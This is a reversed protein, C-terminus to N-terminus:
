EGQSLSLTDRLSSLIDDMITTSLSSLSLLTITPYVCLCLILVYLYDIILFFSGFEKKFVRKFLLTIMARPNVEIISIPHSLRHLERHALIRFAPTFIQPDIRQFHAVPPRPSNPPQTIIYFSPNSHLSCHNILCSDTPFIKLTTNKNENQAPNKQPTYHALIPYSNNPSSTIDTNPQAKFHWQRRTELPNLHSHAPNSNAPSTSHSKQFIALHATEFAPPKPWHFTKPQDM